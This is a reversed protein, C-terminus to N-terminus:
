RRRECAGPDAPLGIYPAVDVRRSQPDEIDIHIHPMDHQVASGGMVGVEQGAEVYDGVLIEPHVAGLHMYRIRHGALPGEQAQMVIITGTRWSGYTKTFYNVRGYGPLFDFRRLPMARPGRQVHGDELDPEGFREPDDEPRGVFTVRSRAMAYIPTGLGGSEGVGGLDLGAHTRGGPRCDSFTSFVNTAPYPLVVGAMARSVPLARRQLYRFGEQGDGVPEMDPLGVVSAAPDVRVNTPAYFDQPLMPVYAESPGNIRASRASSSTSDAASNTITASAFLVDTNSALTEVQLAPPTSQPEGMGPLTMPASVPTDLPLTTVAPQRTVSGTASPAGGVAPMDDYLRADTAPARRPVTRTASWSTPSTAATPPNASTSTPSSALGERIWANSLLTLSLAAGLYCVRHTRKHRLM